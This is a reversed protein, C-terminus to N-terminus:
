RGRKERGGGVGGSLVGKLEGRLQWWSRYPHTWKADLPPLPTLPRARPGVPRDGSHPPAPPLRRRRGQDRGPRLSPLSFPCHRPRPPPPPHAMRGPPPPLTAEGAGQGGRGRPVPRVGWSEAPRRLSRGDPATAAPAARGTCAGGPGVAKGTRGGTAAQGLGEGAGGHM